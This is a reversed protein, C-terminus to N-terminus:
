RSFFFFAYGNFVSLLEFLCPSGSDFCSAHQVGFWDGIINPFDKFRSFQSRSRVVYRNCGEDVPQCM